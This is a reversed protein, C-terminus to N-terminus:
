VGGPEGGAVPVTRPRNESTFASLAAVLGRGLGAALGARLAARRPPLWRDTIVDAM